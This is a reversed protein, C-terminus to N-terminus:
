EKNLTDVSILSIFYAFISVQCHRIIHIVKRCPKLPPLVVNKLLLPASRTSTTGFIPLTHYVFLFIMNEKLIVENQYYLYFM